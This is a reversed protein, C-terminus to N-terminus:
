SWPPIQAPQTKVPWGGPRKLIEFHIKDARLCLRVRTNYARAEEAMHQSIVVVFVDNDAQLSRQWARVAQAPPHPHWILVVGSKLERLIQAASWQLEEEALNELVLHHAASANLGPLFPRAPPNLWFVAQQRSAARQLPAKFFLSEGIFLSSIQVEHLHGLSLGGALLHDLRSYGTSLRELTACTQLRANFLQGRQILKNLEAAERLSKADGKQAQRLENVQSM